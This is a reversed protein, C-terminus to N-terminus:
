FFKMPSVCTQCLNICTKDVVVFAMIEYPGGGLWVKTNNVCIAFKAVEHAIRNYTHKAFM